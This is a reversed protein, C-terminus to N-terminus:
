TIQVVQPVDVVVKEQAQQELYNKSIKMFLLAAGGIRQRARPAFHKTPGNSCRMMTQLNKAFDFNRM